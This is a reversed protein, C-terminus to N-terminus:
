EEEKREVIPKGSWENTIIEIIHDRYKEEAMTTSLPKEYDSPHKDALYGITPHLAPEPWSRTRIEDLGMVILGDFQEIDYLTKSSKATALNKEEETGATRMDKVARALQGGLNARMRLLDNFRRIKNLPEAADSWSRFDDETREPGPEYPASGDGAFWSMVLYSRATITPFVDVWQNDPYSSLLLVPPINLAYSIVALEDVSVTRRRVGDKDRRGGEINTIAAHTLEPMGLHGCEEALRERNWGRRKRWINIREGVTDSLM